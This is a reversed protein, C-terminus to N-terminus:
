HLAQVVSLLPEAPSRESLLKVRSAAPHLRAMLTTFEYDAGAPVLIEGDIIFGRGPVDGLTRVLEPFYRALPRDNRSRLRARVM